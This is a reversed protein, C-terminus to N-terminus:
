GPCCAFERGYRRVFRDANDTDTCGLKALEIALADDDPTSAHEQILVSPSLSKPLNQKEAGGSEGRKTSEIEDPVMSVGASAAAEETEDIYGLRVRQDPKPASNDLALANQPNSARQELKGALPADGFPLHVIPRLATATDTRARQPSAPTNRPLELLFPPASAIRISAPAHGEVYRYVHGGPHKSGAGVVYWGDGFVNLGPGLEGFSTRIHEGNTKFYLQLGKPTSVAVTLPMPRGALLAKISERGEKGIAELVLVRFPGGTGIAYNHNPHLTFHRRVRLPDKSFKRPDGRGATRQEDPPRPSVACGLSLAVLIPLIM